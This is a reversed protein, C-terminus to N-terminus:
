AGMGWTDDGMWVVDLPTDDVTSPTSPIDREDLYLTEKPVTDGSVMHWLKGGIPYKAWPFSMLMEKIAEIDEPEIIIAISEDGAIYAPRM